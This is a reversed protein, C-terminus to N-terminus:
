WNILLKNTLLCLLVRDLFIRIEVTSKQSPLLYQPNLHYKTSLFKCGM